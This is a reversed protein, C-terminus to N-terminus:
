SCFKMLRLTPKDLRGKMQLEKLESFLTNTLEEYQKPKACNSKICILLRLTLQSQYGVLEQERFYDIRTIVLDVLQHCMKDIESIMSDDCDYFLSDNSLIGNIHYPYMKQRTCATSLVQVAKVYLLSLSMQEAPVSVKCLNALAGLTTKVMKTLNMSQKNDTVPIVLMFSMFNPIFHTLIAPLEKVKIDKSMQKLLTLIAHINAEAQGLCHCQYAVQATLLHAQLQQFHSSISPITIYAFAICAQFFGRVRQSSQQKQNTKVLISSALSIVKFILRWQVSDLRKFRGRCDSYFILREEYNEELDADIADIVSTVYQSIQRTEDIISLADLGDALICCMRLLLNHVSTGLRIKTEFSRLFADLTHKAVISKQSKELLDYMLLFNPLNAITVIWDINISTKSSDPILVLLMDCILDKCGSHNIMMRSGSTLKLISDFIENIPNYGVHRILIEVMLVSCRL